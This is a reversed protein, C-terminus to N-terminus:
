DVQSKCINSNITDVFFPVISHLCPATNSDCKDTYIQVCMSVCETVCESVTVSECVWIVCRCLERVCVSTSVGESVPVCVSDCACVCVRECM